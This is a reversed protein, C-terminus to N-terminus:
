RVFFFGGRRSLSGWQQLIDGQHKERTEAKEKLNKEEERQWSAAAVSVTVLTVLFDSLSLSVGIGVPDKIIASFPAACANSVRSSHKLQPVAM